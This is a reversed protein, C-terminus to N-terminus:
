FTMDKDGNATHCPSKAVWMKYEPLGSACDWCCWEHVLCEAPLSQALSARVLCEECLYSWCFLDESLTGGPM